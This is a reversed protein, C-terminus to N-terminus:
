KEWWGKQCVQSHKRREYVRVMVLTGNEDFVNKTFWGDMNFVEYMTQSFHKAPYVASLQYKEINVGFSDTDCRRKMDEYKASMKEGKGKEKEQRKRRAM